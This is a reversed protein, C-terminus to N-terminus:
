ITTGVVERGELETYIVAFHRGPNRMWVWIPRPRFTWVRFTAMAADLDSSRVRIRRVVRVYLVCTSVTNLAIAVCVVSRARPLRYACTYWARHLAVYTHLDAEIGDAEMQSLLNKIEASHHCTDIMASYVATSALAQRRLEAFYSYRDFIDRGRVVM